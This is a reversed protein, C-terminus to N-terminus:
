RLDDIYIHREMAQDYLWALCEKLCAVEGAPIDPLAVPRKMSWGWLRELENIRNKTTFILLRIIEEENM